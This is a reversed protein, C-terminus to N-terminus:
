FYCLEFRISKELQNRLLAAAAEGEKGLRM